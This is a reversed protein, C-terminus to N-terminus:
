DAPPPTKVPAPPGAKLNEPNEKRARGVPPDVQPPASPGRPPAPRPFVAAALGAGVWAAIPTPAGTAARRGSIRSRWRLEARRASDDLGRYMADLRRELDDDNM